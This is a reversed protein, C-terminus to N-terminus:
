RDFLKRYDEVPWRKSVWVATAAVAAITVLMLSVAGLAWGVGGWWTRAAWARAWMESVGAPIGLLSTGMWLGGAVVIVGVAMVTVLLVLSVVGVTRDNLRDDLRDVEKVTDKTATELRARELAIGKVGDDVMVNFSHAYRSFTQNMTTTVQELVMPSLRKEVNVSLREVAEHSLSLPGEVLELVTTLLEGMSKLPKVIGTVSNQLSEHQRQIAVPLAAAVGAMSEMSDTAQIMAKEYEVTGVTSRKLATMQDNLDSLRKQYTQLQETLNEPVGTPTSKLEEVSKSLAKMESALKSLLESNDTSSRRTNMAM